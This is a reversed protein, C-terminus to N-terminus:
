RIHHVHNTYSALRNHSTTPSRKRTWKSIRATMLSACQWQCTSPETLLMSITNCVKEVIMCLRVSPSPRFPNKVVSLSCRLFLQSLFRHFIFTPCRVAKNIPWQKNTHRRSNCNISACSLEVTNSALFATRKIVSVIYTVFKLMHQFLDTPSDFIQLLGSQQNGLAPLPCLLHTAADPQKKHRTTM